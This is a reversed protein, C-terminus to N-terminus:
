KIRKSNSFIGVPVGNQTWGDKSAPIDNIWKGDYKLGDNQTYCGNGHRKDKIWEGTYINGSKSISIGKGHRMNNLWEGKYQGGDKYILEGYGNREDNLYEGVYKNILEDDKRHYYNLICKGHRKGDKFGGTYIDNFKNIYIGNGDPISEGKDNIIYEGYYIGDFWKIIIKNSNLESLLSDIDLTVRNLLIICIIEDKFENINANDNDILIYKTDYNKNLLLIKDSKHTIQLQKIIDIKTEHVTKDMDINFDDKIPMLKYQHKNDYYFGQICNIINLHIILLLIIVTKSNM